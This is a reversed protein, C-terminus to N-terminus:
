IPIYSTSRQLFPPPPLSPISFSLIWPFTPDNSRFSNTYVLRMKSTLILNLFPVTKHSTRYGYCDFKGMLNRNISYPRFHSFPAIAFSSLIEQFSCFTKSASPSAFKANIEPFFLPTANSESNSTIDLTRLYM